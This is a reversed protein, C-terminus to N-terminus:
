GKNYIDVVNGAQICIPLRERGICGRSPVEAGLALYLPCQM